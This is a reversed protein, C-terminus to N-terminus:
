QPAEGGGQAMQMIAQAIMQQAEPPLQQFAELFQQAIMQPDEGGGPAAGQPAQEPAMMSEANGTDQPAMMGGDQLFSGYGLTSKKM